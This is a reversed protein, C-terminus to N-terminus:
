RPTVQDAINVDAGSGLLLQVGDMCNNWCALFMVSQGAQRSKVNNTSNIDAGKAILEEAVVLQRSKVALALASYGSQTSNVQNKANIQQSPLIARVKALDGEEAAIM